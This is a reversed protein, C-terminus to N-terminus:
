VELHREGSYTNVYQEFTEQAKGWQGDTILDRGSRFMVSAADNGAQESLRNVAVKRPQGAVSYGVSGLLAIFALSFIIMRVLNSSLVSTTATATTLKNWM